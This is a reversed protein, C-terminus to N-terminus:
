PNVVSSFMKCRDGHWRKYNASDVSKSCHPCSVLTITKMQGESCGPPCESSYYNTVGDNFWKLGKTTKITVFSLKGPVCGPPCEYRLYNKIGDNYYHKGSNHDLGWQAELNKRTIEFIDPRKKDTWYYGNAGRKAREEDSWKSGYSHHNEGSVGLKQEETWKSHDGYKPNDEGFMIPWAGGGPVSNYGNNISDHENIFHDEMVKCTYSERPPLEEKAQYIVEWIFAEWGYERIAKHFKTQSGCLTDKKHGKSRHQITKSTFGIYHLGTIINTARYITYINM